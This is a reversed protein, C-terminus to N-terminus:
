LVHDPALNRIPVEEHWPHGAFTGGMMQNYEKWNHYTDTASHMGALGKGSKVFDALSNKLRAERGEAAKREAPDEPMQKPRFIDGTTNLMIVADYQKLSEPEFASDDETHDARYADTKDGMMMLSVVGVPISDHRF